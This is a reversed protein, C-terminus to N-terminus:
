ERRLLDATLPRGVGPVTLAAVVLGAAVAWAWLRALDSTPLQYAPDAYALYARGVVGGAVMALTVGVLMPLALGLLQALGLVTAPTGMARLSAVRRRRETLRDVVSVVVTLMAVSMVATVLLLTLRRYSQM